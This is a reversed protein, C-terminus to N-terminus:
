WQKYKILFVILFILFFMLLDLSLQMYTLNKILFQTYNYLIEYFNNYKFSHIKINLAYQLQLYFKPLLLTNPAYFKFVLMKINPANLLIYFNTLKFLFLYSLYISLQHIVVFKLKLLNWKHSWIYWFFLFTLYVLIYSWVKIKFFFNIFLAFSYISKINLLFIIYWSLKLVYTNVKTFFSHRTPLFSYRLSFYYLLFFGVIWSTIFYYKKFVKNHFWSLNLFVLWWLFYEIYDYVWIYGWSFNLWGWFGGLFLALITIILTKYPFIYSLNSKIVFLKYFQITFSLGLYFLPPHMSILGILLEFSFRYNIEIIYIYKLLIFNQLELFYIKYTLFIFFIFYLLKNLHNLYLLCYLFFFSFYLHNFFVLVAKYWFVVITTLLYLINLNFIILLFEWM